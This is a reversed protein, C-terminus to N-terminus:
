SLLNIPYSQFRRAAPLENHQKRQHQTLRRRNSPALRKGLRAAIYIVPFAPDFVETIGLPALFDKGTDGMAFM